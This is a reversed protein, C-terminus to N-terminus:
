LEPELYVMAPLYMVSGNEQKLPEISIGSFPGYLVDDVLIDMGRSNDSMVIYGSGIHLSSYLTSIAVNVNAQTDGTKKSKIRKMYAAEQQASEPEIYSLELWEASPIAPTTKDNECPVNSINMNYIVRTASETTAYEIGFLDMQTLRMNLQIPVYRFLKCEMIDQPSKDKFGENKEQFRRIAATIGIRIHLCFPIVIDPLTADNVEGKYCKVQYISIPLTRSAEMIYDQLLAESYIFPLTDERLGGDSSPDLAVSRRIIDKAQPDKKMQKIAEKSDLRPVWPRLAFPVYIHRLYWSDITSLYQALTNYVDYTPVIYIRIDMEDPNKRELLRVYSKLFRHIIQDSGTLVIKIPAMHFANDPNISRQFVEYLPENVSKEAQLNFISEDVTRNTVDTDTPLPEDIQSIDIISITHIPFQPTYISFNSLYTFLATTLPNSDDCSFNNMEVLLELFFDEQLKRAHEVEVEGAKEIILIVRKYLDFVNEPSLGSLYSVDQINIDHHNSFVFLIIMLRLVHSQFATFNITRGMDVNQIIDRLKEERHKRNLLSLKYFLGVEPSENIDLFVFANARRFEQKQYTDYSSEFLPICADIMPFEERLKNIMSNGPSKMEDKLLEVLRDASSGYPIPWRRLVDIELILSEIAEYNMIPYRTILQELIHLVPLLSAEAVRPNSSRVSIIIEQIKRHFIDLFSVPMHSTTKIYNKLFTYVMTLEGCDLISFKPNPSLHISGSGLHVQLDQPTEVKIEQGLYNLYNIDEFDRIPPQFKTAHTIILPIIEERENPIRLVCTMIEDFMLNLTPHNTRHNEWRQRAESLSALFKEDSPSYSESIVLFYLTALAQEMSVGSIKKLKECDILYKVLGLIYNGIQIKETWFANYKAVPMNVKGNRLFASKDKGSEANGKNKAM